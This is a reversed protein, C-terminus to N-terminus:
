QTAALQRIRSSRRVPAAPLDPVNQSAADERRGPRQNTSIAAPAREPEPGRVVTGEAAPATKAAPCNRRINTPLLFTEQTVNLTPKLRLVQLAEKLRLQRRDSDRDIISSAHLLTPRLLEGLTRTYHQHFNGEQLHVSLRKPLKTTTMSIYSHTCGNVPCIICYVVGPKKLPDEDVGPSNKMLM